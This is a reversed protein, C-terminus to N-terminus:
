QITARIPAAAPPTWHLTAGSAESFDKKVKIYLFGETEEGPALERAKLRSNSLMEGVQTATDFSRVGGSSSGRVVPGGLGPPYPQGTRPDVGDRGYGGYGADGHVSRGRASKFVPTKMVEPTVQTVVRNELPRNKTDQVTMLDPNIALTAATGNKIWVKVVAYRAELVGYSFDDSLDWRKMNTAKVEIGQALATAALCFALTLLVLLRRM